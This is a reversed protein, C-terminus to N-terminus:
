LAKQYVAITEKVCRDWSYRSAVQLGARISTTRLTHDTMGKTISDAFADIDEPDILMAAGQTVEPLCSKNSVITPVGCAMAEIPPLGFGEYLSPFLFLSAGAYIAPLEADPVFGLLRVYGASEARDIAAHIQDNLWGTAGVILLTATGGRQRYLDFARLARDLGKRPELTAVCLCYNGYTSRTQPSTDGAAPHFAPSVGLPVVSVRLPDIGAFMVLEDRVFASDVIVHAAGQVTREFEKEFQRVREVPHTEPYRFVSLDHVTVVWQEAHAPVFYNPGHYLRNQFQRRHRLRRAFRPVLTRPPRRNGLFHDSDAFWQGFRYFRVDIDDALKLGRCLEWTYRGIGTLQPALAEIGLGVRKM